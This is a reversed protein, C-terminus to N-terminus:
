GLDHLQDGVWRELSMKLVATRLARSRRAREAAPWFWDASGDRIPAALAATSGAQKVWV